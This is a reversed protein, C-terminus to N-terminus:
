PDGAHTAYEKRGPKKGLRTAPKLQFSVGGRDDGRDLVELFLGKERSVILSTILALGTAIYLYSM